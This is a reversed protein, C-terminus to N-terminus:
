PEIYTEFLKKTYVERVVMDVEIIDKSFQYPISVFEAERGDPLIFKGNKLTKQFDALTFPLPVKNYIIKQGLSLGSFSKGQHYKQNLFKASMIERHNAPVKGGVLPFLKPIAYDMTAVKLVNVRNRKIKSAMNGEGGLLKSLEDAKEAFNVVLKELTNLATKSNPLAVPYDTRELGKITSAKPNSANLIGTKIEYSTGTYNEVTWIDSQDVTFSDLRTQKLDGTNYQKTPFDIKIPPKYSSTRLWFPDQKNRLHVKNDIVDIKADFMRKCLEFMEPIINGYDSTSPIGKTIPSIIPTFDDYLNQSNNFPKTPMYTYTDLEEIPSVFEWGYHECVKSLLTRLTCGKNEIVPPILLDILEKTMKIVLATLVLSYAIKVVITLVAFIAASISAISSSSARQILDAIDKSIQSITEEIQQELLYLTIIAMAIEMFNNKKEVVTKVTVFDSDTIAGVDYMFAYTVGNIRDQFNTVSNGGVFKAKVEIPRDLSGMMPEIEEYNDSKDIYGKFIINSLDRQRYEIIADTGEFINGRRVDNIIADAADRVLTFRDSEIQPQNSNSGFAATIKMDAWERPETVPKGEIRLKLGTVAM